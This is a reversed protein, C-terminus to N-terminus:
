PRGDSRVSAVKEGIGAPEIVWYGGGVTVAIHIRESRYGVDDLTRGDRRDVQSVAVESLGRGTSRQSNLDAHRERPNRKTLDCRLAGVDIDGCGTRRLYGRDVRRRM